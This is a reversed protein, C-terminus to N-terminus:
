NAGLEFAVRSLIVYDSDATERAASKREYIALIKLFGLRERNKAELQELDGSQTASRIEEEIRELRLKVRALYTSEGAQELMRKRDNRDIASFFEIYTIENSPFNRFRMKKFCVIPAGTRTNPYEARDMRSELANRALESLRTLTEWTAASVDVDYSKQDEFSRMLSVSIRRSQPLMGTMSGCFGSKAHWPIILVQAAQTGRVQSAAETSRYGFPGSYPPDEEPRPILRVGAPLGQVESEDVPTQPARLDPLGWERLHARITKRSLANQKQLWQIWFVEFAQIKESNPENSISYAAEHLRLAIRDDLSMRTWLRLDIKFDPDERRVIQVIRQNTGIKPNKGFDRILDLALSRSPDHGFEELLLDFCLKFRLDASTLSHALVPNTESIKKWVAEVSRDVQADLEADIKGSNSPQLAPGLAGHKRAKFLSMAEVRIEGSETVSAVGSGGGSGWGGTASYASGSLLISATM